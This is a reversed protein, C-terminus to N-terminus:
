LVRPPLFCASLSCSGRAGSLLGRGGAADRPAAEESAQERGSCRRPRPGRRSTAKEQERAQSRAAVPPLRKTEINEKISHACCCFYCPSVTAVPPHAAPPSGHPHGGREVPTLGCAPGQGRGDTCPRPSCRVTEAAFDRASGTGGGGRGTPAAGSASAKSAATGRRLTQSRSSWGRSSASHLSPENPQLGDSM